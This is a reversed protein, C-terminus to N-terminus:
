AAITPGRRKQWESGGPFEFRRLSDDHMTISYGPKKPTQYRGGAVVVPDVFHEHLHDVFEIVRGEISGSVSVYDFIPYTSYTSAFGSVAPTPVFSSEM